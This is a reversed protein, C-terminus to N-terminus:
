EDGEIKSMKYEITNIRNQIYEAEKQLKPDHKGENELELNLLKVELVRKKDRYAKYRDAQWEAYLMRLHYVPNYEFGKIIPAQIPDITTEDHMTVAKSYESVTIYIDPVKSYKNKFEDPDVSFAGFLSAYVGINKEIMEIKKPPLDSEEIDFSRVLMEQTYMYNLFDISFRSVFSLYEAARILAAKKATLGERIIDRSFIAEIQTELEQANKILNPIRVQITQIITREKKNQHANNFSVNNDFNRYFISTLEKVKESKFQKENSFFKVAETYTPSLINEIESRTMRVDELIRSKDMRPLLREIFNALNM